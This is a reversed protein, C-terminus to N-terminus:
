SRPRGFPSRPRGLLAPIEEHSQRALTVEGAGFVSPLSALVQEILTTGSRPLGIIFVPRRTELGAGALRVFLEPTFGAILSDAFRRHEEANYSRGRRALQELVMANGQAFRAAAAPWEGRGDLVEGHAFLLNIRDAEPLDPELLRSELLERQNDPLKGRLM